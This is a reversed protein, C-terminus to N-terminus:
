KKQIKKVTEERTEPNSDMTVSKEPPIKVPDQNDRIERHTLPELTRLLVAGCSCSIDQFTKERVEPKKM